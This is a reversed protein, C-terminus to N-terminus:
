KLYEEISWQMEHPKFLSVIHIPKFVQNFEFYPLDEKVTAAYTTRKSSLELM